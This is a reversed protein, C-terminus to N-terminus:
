LENGEGKDPFLKGMLFMPVGFSLYKAVIGVAEMKKLNVSFILLPSLLTLM